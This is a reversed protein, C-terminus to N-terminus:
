IKHRRPQQLAKRLANKAYEETKKRMKMSINSKHTEQYRRPPSHSNNTRNSKAAKLAREREKKDRAAQTKSKLIVARYTCLWMNHQALASERHLHEQIPVYFMTSLSDAPLLKGEDRYTYYTSIENICQMREKDRKEEEEKGHRALNREVWM